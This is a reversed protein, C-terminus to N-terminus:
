LVDTFCVPKRSVLQCFGVLRWVCHFLCCVGRLALVVFGMLFQSPPYRSLASSPPHPISPAFPSPFFHSPPLFPIPILPRPFGCSGVCGCRIVGPCLGVEAWACCACCWECVPVDEYRGYAFAVVKWWIEFKVRRSKSLAWVSVWWSPCLTRSVLTLPSFMELAFVQHFLLLFQINIVITLTNCLTEHRLRM